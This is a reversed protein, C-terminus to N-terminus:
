LPREELEMTVTDSTDITVTGTGSVRLARAKVTYVGAALSAIRVAGTPMTTHTNATNISMLSVENDVANVQIALKVVTATVTSYCSLSLSIVLDSEAAGGVKTFSKSANTIDVYTASTTALTCGGRSSFVDKSAGLTLRNIQAIWTNVVSARLRGAVVSALSV